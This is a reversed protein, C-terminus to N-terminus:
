YIVSYYIIGLLINGLLGLINSLLINGMVLVRLLNVYMYISTRNDVFGQIEPVFGMTKYVISM